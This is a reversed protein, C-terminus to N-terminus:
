ILKFHKAIAEADELKLEGSKAFLKIHLGDPYSSLKQPVIKINDDSFKYEDIDFEKRPIPKLEATNFRGLNDNVRSFGGGIYFIQYKSKSEFILYASRRASSTRPLASYHTAWDPAQDIEQQTLERM